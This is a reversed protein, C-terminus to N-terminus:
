EVAFIFSEYALIDTRFQDIRHENNNKNIVINIIAIIMMNITIMIVGNNDNGKLKVKSSKICKNNIFYMDREIVITPIICEPSHKTKLPIFRDFLQM